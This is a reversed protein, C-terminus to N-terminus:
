VVVNMKGDMGQLKLYRDSLVSAYVNYANDAAGGFTRQFKGSLTWRVEIDASGYRLRDKHHSVNFAFIPFLSAFDEALLHFAKISKIRM